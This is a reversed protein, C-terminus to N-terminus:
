AGEASALTEAVAEIERELRRERETHDRRLLALCLELYRLRRELEVRDPAETEDM